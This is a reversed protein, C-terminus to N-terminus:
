HVLHGINLNACVSTIHIKQMLLYVIFVFCFVLLIQVSLAYFKDTYGMSSATETWYGATALLHKNLAWLPLFILISVFLLLYYHRKIWQKIQDSFRGFLLGAFFLLTTNYWWEGYFWKGAINESFGSYGLLLSVIILILISLGMLCYSLKESKIYRFFVYFLLYLVLIEVAFWMQDNLLLFGFFAAVLEGSSFHIGKILVMIM